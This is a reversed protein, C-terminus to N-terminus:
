EIWILADKKIELSPTLGPNFPETIFHHGKKTPYDLLITTIQKLMHETEEKSDGEDYDVDVLFRTEARAQPKMFAGTWRNKIDSYFKHRDADGYYDADLMDYKFYRIAKEINRKNVSSYIRFLEPDPAQARTKRLVGLAQEYEGVGNTIIKKAHYDPRNHGGDKVRQLLILMRWGDRFDEKTM